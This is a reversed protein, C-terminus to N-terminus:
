RQRAIYALLDAVETRTMSFNPMVPHPRALHEVLRNEDRWQPDQAIMHFSPATDSAKAQSDSVVHCQACWRLATAYGAEPDAPAASAIRPVVFLSLLLLVRLM